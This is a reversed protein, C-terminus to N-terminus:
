FEQFKKDTRKYFKQLEVNTEHNKRNMGNVKEALAQHLQGQRNIREEITKLANQVETLDSAAVDLPKHALEPLPQATPRVAGNYENRGINSNM